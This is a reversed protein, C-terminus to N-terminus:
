LNLLQIGIYIPEGTKRDTSGKKPVSMEWNRWTGHWSPAVATGQLTPAIYARVARLQHKTDTVGM